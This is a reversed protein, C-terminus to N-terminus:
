SARSLAEATKPALGTPLPTHASKPDGLCARLHEAVTLKSPELLTGADAESLLRTREKEADQRTGKVTVFRTKRKGAPDKGVDFKIQWSRRGRRRIHARSM